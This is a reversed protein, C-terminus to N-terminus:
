ADDAALRQRVEDLERQAADRKEVAQRRLETTDADPSKPAAFIGGLFGAGFAVAALVFAAFSLRKMNKM